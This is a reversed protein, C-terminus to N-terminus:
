GLSDHRSREGTTEEKSKDKPIAPPRPVMAPRSDQSISVLKKKNTQTVAGNTSKPAANTANKKDQSIEPAEDTTPSEPSQIQGKIDHILSAADEEEDSNGNTDGEYDGSGSKTDEDVFSGEAVEQQPSTSATAKAEEQREETASKKTLEEQIASTSKEQIARAM